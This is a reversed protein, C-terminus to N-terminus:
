LHINIYYIILFINCVRIDLKTFSSYDLLSVNERCAEYETEVIDFWHPKGFTNTTATILKKPNINDNLYALFNIFEVYM